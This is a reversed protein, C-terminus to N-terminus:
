CIWSPGAARARRMAAVQARRVRKASVTLAETRSGPVLWPHPLHLLPSIAAKSEQARGRACEGGTV